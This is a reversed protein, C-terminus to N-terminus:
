LRKEAEFAGGALAPPLEFFSAAKELLRKKGEHEPKGVARPATSNHLAPSPTTVM